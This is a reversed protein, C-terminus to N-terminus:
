FRPPLVFPAILHDVRLSSSYRVEIEDQHRILKFTARCAELRERVDRLDKTAVFVRKGVIESM